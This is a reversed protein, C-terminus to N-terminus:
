QGTESLVSGLSPQKRSRKRLADEYLEEYQAVVRPFNYQELQESAWSRWIKRLQKEHLLLDLRRAFEASDKPDIISVSGLGNMIASYGPNNGAVTVLGMAMAELLVIGFSEGYVAPSCFLDSTQLYKIKEEDSIYGTFTVNHLDLTEALMELKYRYPGDGAIILSVNPEQDTLLRFARLLHKVGKRNELRGVYFITKKEKDEDYKQPAKFRGLDIGNPIITVPEDTLSCIYESAVESVATFYDIYKLTSRTYPTVVKIFTRSMRTSPLAAHFTAINVANSRSLIQRSLVPVWPEHFHLVDFKEEELMRQISENMSASVQVTTHLPSRFDTANGIFLIDTPDCESIDRPEPTIIKVRHGHKQLETRIAKVQEQVGGSRVINYPCVLGIKM